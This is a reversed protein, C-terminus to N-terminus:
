AGGRAGANMIWDEADSESDSSDDDDDDADDSGGDTTEHDDDIVDEIDDDIIDAQQSFRHSLEIVEAVLLQIRWREDENVRPAVVLLLRVLEMLLPRIRQSEWPLFIATAPVDM